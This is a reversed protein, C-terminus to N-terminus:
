LLTGQGNELKWKIRKTNSKFPTCSLNALNKFNLLGTRCGQFTLRQGEWLYIKKEANLM